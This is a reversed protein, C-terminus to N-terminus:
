LSAGILPYARGFRTLRIEPGRRQGNPFFTQCLCGFLDTDDSTFQGDQFIQILTGNELRVHGDTQFQLEQPHATQLAQRQVQGMLKSFEAKEQEFDRRQTAALLSFGLGTALFAGLLLVLLVELLSFGSGSVM